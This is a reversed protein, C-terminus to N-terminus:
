IKGRKVLKEFIKRTTYGYVFGSDIVPHPQSIADEWSKWSIEYNCEYKKKKLSLEIQKKIILIFFLLAIDYHRQKNRFCFDDIKVREGHIIKNRLLFFSDAWIEKLTLKVNQVNLVGRSLYKIRYSYMVDGSHVSIDKIKNRFDQRPAPNYESLQLLIEFAAAQLLVRSNKSVYHSNYYSEFFIESASLIRRYILPRKDRLDILHLFLESDFNFRMPTPVFSPRQYVMKDLEYGGKKYSIIEGVREAVGDSELTFNQYIVDFNDSTFMQHGSNCNNIVTNNKSLFSLFLLYRVEKVLAMESDSITRFDIDGISFIGIEDIININYCKYCNFIKTIKDILRQDKIFKNKCKSFNWIKAFGFDIVDVDKMHLYPFYIIQYQQDGM